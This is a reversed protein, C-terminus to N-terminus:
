TLIKKRAHVPDAFNALREFKSIRESLDKLANELQRLRLKWRLRILFAFLGRRVGTIKDRVDRCELQMNLEKLLSGWYAFEIESVTQHQQFINVIAAMMEIGLRRQSEALVGQFALQLSSYAQSYYQVGELEEATFLNRKRLRPSIQILIEQGATFADLGRSYAFQTDLDIPHQCYPCVEPWPEAEAEIESECAICVIPTLESETM